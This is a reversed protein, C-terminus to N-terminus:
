YYRGLICSQEDSIGDCVLSRIEWLVRAIYGAVPSDALFYHGRAFMSHHRHTLLVAM